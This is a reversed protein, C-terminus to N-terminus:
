LQAGNLVSSSATGNVSGSLVAGAGTAVAGNGGSGGINTGNADFRFNSNFLLGFHNKSNFNNRKCIVGQADPAATSGRTIVAAYFGGTTRNFAADHPILMFDDNNRNFVVGARGGLGTASYSPERSAITATAVFGNGSVDPWTAVADGNSFGTLLTADLWLANNASNGVGGPGTQAGLLPRFLVAAFFIIQRM